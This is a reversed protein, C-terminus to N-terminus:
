RFGLMYRLIPLAHPFRQFLWQLLSALPSAYSFPMTIPFPDSWTSKTGNSDQVIVKIEYSGEISWTHSAEAVEGSLYPGLWGSDFGDGWSFFYYLLDNDVDTTSTSYTHTVHIKGQSPGEPTAPQAPPNNTHYSQMGLDPNGWLSGHIFAEYRPNIWLGQTYMECLANHHAQGQTFNESTVSTTFFYKFSQDDGDSPDDWASCYYAVKNAGLFGVAGQKMMAQGINLYETDSNSCSAASIIAPYEDNLHQCDSSKIFSTGEPAGHAHWSVFGYTGKSWVNVVNVHTLLYDKRYQSSFEYLRTKSWHAMWPHRSSNACYEMFVAGDTNDDIFAALLLINNKFSPNTNQEYAVSKQCIHEVTEPDSWPIRGVTIEGYFDIPDSNEGYQHDGDADWSVNDPLSLEAYYFDTEPNGGGIDQWTERMPIEDPHGIILLDQIDWQDSPYKERIFNRIKEALDYGTYHSAIWSTTVVQVNKGKAEEWEALDGISSTLSDLTIIVFPYKETGGKQIDYWATAENYNLIISRAQQEFFTDADSVIMDGTTSEKMEYDIEVIIDPNYTLTGSVPAYQIPNIRVDVLNYQRYGATREFAVVSAPYVTDVGYAEAKNEIYCQEEKSQIKEYAQDFVGPAPVPLVDYHNPLVVVDGLTYHLDVFVSGPPIAISFIKSPLNPKGPILIRGFGDIALEDRGQTQQFTVSGVPIQVSIKGNTHTSPYINSLEEVSACTITSSLVVLCLTIIVVLKKMNKTGGILYIHFVFRIM